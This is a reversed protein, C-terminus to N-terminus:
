RKHARQTKHSPFLTNRWIDGPIGRSKFSIWFISASTWKWSLGKCYYSSFLCLKLLNAVSKRRLSIDENRWWPDKNQPDRLVALYRNGNQLVETAPVVSKDLAIPFASFLSKIGLGTAPAIRWTTEISFWIQVGKGMNRTGVCQIHSWDSARRWVPRSVKAALWIAVSLSTWSM